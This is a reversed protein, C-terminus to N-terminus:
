WRAGAGEAMDELEDLKELDCVDNIPPRLSLSDLVGFGEVGDAGGGLVVFDLSRFGM